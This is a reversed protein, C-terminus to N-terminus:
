LDSRVRHEIIKLILAQIAFLMERRRIPDKGLSAKVLTNSPVDTNAIRNQSIMETLANESIQPHTYVKGLSTLSDKEFSLKVSTFIM